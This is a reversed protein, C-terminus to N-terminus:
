GPYVKIYDNVQLLEVDVEVDPLELNLNVNKLDTHQDAENCIKLLNAKTVKLSALHALKEVTQKKSLTEIFKGLLIITILTSSIEFFHAHNHVQNMYMM